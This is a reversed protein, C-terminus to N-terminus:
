FSFWWEPLKGLFQGGTVCSKYGAGWPVGPWARKKQRGKIHRGEARVGASLLNQEDGPRLGAVGEQCMCSTEPAKRWAGTMISRDDSSGGAQGRDNRMGWVSLEKLASVTGKFCM